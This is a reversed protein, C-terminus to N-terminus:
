IMTKNTTAFKNVVVETTRHTLISCFDGIPQSIPFIALIEPWWRTLFRPKATHNDAFPAKFKKLLYNSRERFATQVSNLLHNWSVSFATERCQFPAKVVSFGHNWSASVASQRRQFPPKESTLDPFAPLEDSKKVFPKVPQHSSVFIKVTPSPRLM